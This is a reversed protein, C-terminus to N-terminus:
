DDLEWRDPAGRAAVPEGQEDASESRVGDCVQGAVGRRGHRIRELRRRRAPAACLRVPAAAARGRAAVERRQRPLDVRVGAAREAARRKRRREQLFAFAPM